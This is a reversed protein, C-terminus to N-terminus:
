LVIIPPLSVSFTVTPAGAKADRQGDSKAAAAPLPPLALRGVSETEAMDLSFGSDPSSLRSAGRESRLKSGERSVGTRKAARQMKIQQVMEEVASLQREADGLCASLSSNEQQLRALAGEANHLSKGAKTCAEFLVAEKANKYKQSAGERELAAKTAADDWTQNVSRLLAERSLVEHGDLGLTKRMRELEDQLRGRLQEVSFRNAVPFTAIHGTSELFRLTLLNEEYGSISPTLTGLLCTRSNNQFSESLLLTLKSNRFPIHDRTGDSLAYVCSALHFLSRNIFTLERFREGTCESDQENERGALDVVQVTAMRHGNDPPCNCVEVKLSFITHSRSSKNNMSTKATHRAREGIGVLRGVDEFSTVMHDSLNEVYVGVDPHTHIKLGQDERAGAGMAVAATAAAGPNRPGASAGRPSAPGTAPRAIERGRESGSRRVASHTDSALLDRLRNNYIEIYSAQVRMQAGQNRLQGAKVFLGHAIRPLLGRGQGSLWDGVVTHTKGTGTQGYACLCANFGQTADDVMQAGIRQYVTQQNAYSSASPDSSDLAFDCEFGRISQQQPDILNVRNPPEIRVCGNINADRGGRNEHALYPRLRVGTKVREHHEIAVISGRISGRTAPGRRGRERGLSARRPSPAAPQSRPSQGDIPNDAVPSRSRQEAQRASQIPPSPSRSAM